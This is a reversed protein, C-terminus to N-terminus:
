HGKVGRPPPRPRPRPRGGSAPRRLLRRRLRPLDADLLGRRRPPRRGAARRRRGGGRPRRRPGSVTGIARAPFVEAPLIIAGWAAHGFFVLSLCPSPWRRAKPAPSPWSPSRTRSDGGHAHLGERRRPRPPVGRAILARPVAGSAVNGLPTSRRVAGLGGGGAARALLRAGAAPLPPVWFTLFYTIPDTFVRAAVCGWTEKMGRSRAALRPPRGGAEERGEDILPPREDEGLRPHDKPLRYLLAWASWGSSGRPASSRVFAWRWGALFPSRRSSRVAFPRASPRARTSSASPSPSAGADPVVRRGRRVGAPFNAVPQTPASCCGRARSDAARLEGPRPAM